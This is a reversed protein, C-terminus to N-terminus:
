MSPSIFGVRGFNPILYNLKVVASLSVYWCISCYEFSTKRLPRRPHHWQSFRRLSFTIAVHSRFINAISIGVTKEHGALDTERTSGLLRQMDAINSARMSLQEELVSIRNDLQTCFYFKSRMSGKKQADGGNFITRTGQHTQPGGRGGRLGATRALAEARRGEGEAAQGTTEDAVLAGFM